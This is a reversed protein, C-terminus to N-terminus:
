AHRRARLPAAADFTGAHAKRLWSELRANQKARTRDIAGTADMAWRAAMFAQKVVRAHTCAQTAKAAYVDDRGSLPASAWYAADRGESYLAEDGTTLWRRVVDPASWLHLVDLACSRAFRALLEKANVCWLAKRRRCCHKAVPVDHPVMEGSGEVRWVLVGNAYRLADIARESMHLGAQCPVLRGRHVLTSGARIHRNDNYALKRGVTFHWGLLTGKPM